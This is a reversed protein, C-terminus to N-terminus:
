LRAIILFPHPRMGKIARQLFVQRDPFEMLTWRGDKREEFILLYATQGLKVRL